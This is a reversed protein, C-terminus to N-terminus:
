GIMIPYGDYAEEKKLAEGLQEKEAIGEAVLSDGDLSIGQNGMASFSAFKRRILGLTIKSLATAYEEIWTVTYLDNSDSDLGEWNTLTSGSIFYARILIFGCINELSTYGNLIPPPQIELINQYKHYKFNYSDVTYRDLMELFDLAIHYSILNYGYGSVNMLDFLGAQYLYNEITFLTNIGGSSEMEYNLVEICGGPMDYETIGASLSKTFYVEQTAQGVAWKIFKSRAKDVNDIIQQDSLEVKIIPYGLNRKIKGM